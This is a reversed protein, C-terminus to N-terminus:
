RRAPATSERVRLEFGLDITRASETPGLEFLGLLYEGTRRGIQQADVSVTTLAPYSQTGVEFNGFGIISIEDPVRRGQRACEMLAGIAPLDSVVFVAEVDPARALLDRMDNAGETFSIPPTSNRTILETSLRAERLAATFGAIRQEGRFDRNPGDERPGLAAIKTHGLSVLYQGALRGAEVNSYGIAVDIPDRPMDWIEVVPIGSQHLMVTAAKSHIGGVLVIADPRRALMARILVEEREMSYSSYGILPRYGHPELVEALGQATDAFNSNTLTPLILAVFKSRKSSLSGANDDPVYGLQEIARLVKERTHPSVKEPKTLVRSVTMASVGALSCVDRMTPKSRQM